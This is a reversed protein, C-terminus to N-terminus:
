QPRVKKTGDPASPHTEDAKERRGVAARLGLSEASKQIAEGLEDAITDENWRFILGRRRQSSFLYHSVLGMRWGGLEDRRHPSAVYTAMEALTRALQEGKPPYDLDAGPAVDGGCVLFVKARRRSGSPQVLIFRFEEAAAVHQFDQRSFSDVRGLRAKVAAAREFELAEAASEMRRRLESRLEERRGSAFEIARTIVRRYGDMSITGNCPALCRGMQGYSCLEGNPSQGLCRYDRCLDFADQIGAVFQDASRGSGFPGFYRGRAELVKRTRVFHPFKEGPDVHVFWAPRWAPMQSWTEPWIAQALELFCSDTEFHGTTLKWLIAGTVERLDVRRLRKEDPPAGLRNLVRSRLNAAPLLVIPEWRRNMLLGVGRRPPVGVLQDDTVPISVDIRGDFKAIWDTM